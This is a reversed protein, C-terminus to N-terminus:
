SDAVTVRTALEADTLRDVLQVIAGKVNSTNSEDEMQELVRHKDILVAFAIALDRKGRADPEKLQHEHNATTIAAAV